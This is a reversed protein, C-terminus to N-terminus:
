LDAFYATPFYALNIVGLVFCVNFLAPPIASPAPTSTPASTVM